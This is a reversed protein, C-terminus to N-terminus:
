WKGVMGYMERLKGSKLGNYMIEACTLIFALDSHFYCQLQLLSVFRRLALMGCLKAYLKGQDATEDWYHLARSATFWRNLNPDIIKKLLRALEPVQECVYREGEANHRRAFTHTM